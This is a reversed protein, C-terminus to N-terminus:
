DQCILIPSPPHSVIIAHSQLGLSTQCRIAAGQQGAELLDKASMTINTSSLRDLLNNTTAFHVTEQNPFERSCHFSEGHVALMCGNLDPCPWIQSLFPNAVVVIRLGMRIKPPKLFSAPSQVVIKSLYSLLCALSFAHV